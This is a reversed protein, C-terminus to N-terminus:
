LFLVSLMFFTFMAWAVLYIGIANDLEAPTAAYSEIIGSSPLLITAYSM